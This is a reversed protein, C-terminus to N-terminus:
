FESQCVIKTYKDAFSDFSKYTAGELIYDVIQQLYKDMSPNTVNFCMAIVVQNEPYIYFWAYGGIGNGIHGYYLRNNWDVSSQWGIGYGTENGTDLCQSQLMENQIDIPLFTRGLIANGLIAMEHSTSLFGGGALKYFNNVETSKYFSTKGKTYPIAQEEVMGGMDARTQYMGLPLLVNEKVYREFPMKAAEQMALSILNWDFSNYFYKTGPAFLLSDKAFMEIGQRISLSENSFVERGKYGRIGALHGALQKITFDYEKKPFYPVYEYLSKNWDIIGQAQMKALSVGSLPKSVSAIRFLTSNPRITKKTDIDAWGYGQEWITHGQKTVSISMGPITKSELLHTIIQEAKQQAEEFSSIKLTLTDQKKSTNEQGLLQQFFSLITSFLVIYKLNM